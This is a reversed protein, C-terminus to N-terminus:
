KLIHRYHDAAGRLVKESCSFFQLVCPMELHYFVQTGNKQSSVIGANKLVTLHKSVTSMDLDVMATLEAVPFDHESLRDVIYLRAPHALAKIVQARAEYQQKTKDDM